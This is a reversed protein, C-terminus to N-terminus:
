ATVKDHCGWCSLKLRSFIFHQVQVSHVTADSASVRKPALGRAHAGCSLWKGLIGLHCKWHLWQLWYLRLKRWLIRRALLALLGLVRRPYDRGQGPTTHRTSALCGPKSGPRSHCSDCSPVGHHSEATEANSRGADTPLLLRLLLLLHM